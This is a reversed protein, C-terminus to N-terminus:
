RGLTTMVFGLAWALYAGSGTLVLPLELRGWWRAAASPTSEEMYVSLAEQRIREAAEPSLDLTPLAGLGDEVPGSM